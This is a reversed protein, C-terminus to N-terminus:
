QLKNVLKEVSRHYLKDIFQMLCQACCCEVSFMVSFVWRCQDSTFRMLRIAMQNCKGCIMERTSTARNKEKNKMESSLSSLHRNFVKLLNMIVIRVFMNISKKSPLRGCQIYLGEAIIILKWKVIHAFSAVSRVYHPLKYRVRVATERM